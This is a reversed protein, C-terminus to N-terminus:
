KRSRPHAKKYINKLEQIGSHTYVQTAALSTHGLLEKIANLDAGNNLLHTAFTHRLMHPSKKHKISVRSIYSNILRYVLKEYIKKGKKTLFLFDEDEIVELENRYSLYKNIFGITNELLPIIREKNRKGLVKLEKKHFDIGPPSLNILEARRIGTTYFVSIIARDRAGEFDESFLREDFLNQMETESFPVSIKRHIKMGSISALPNIKLSDTKQLFKYFSKLAAIKRNITKESLSKDSLGAIWMRVEKTSINTFNNKVAISKIFAEFDSIDGAYSKITLLSYNREKQLYDLFQKKLM